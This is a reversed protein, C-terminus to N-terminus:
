FNNALYEIFTTITENRSGFPMGLLVILKPSGLPRELLLVNSEGATITTGTKSGILYPLEGALKNTNELNHLLGTQSRTSMISNRTSSWIDPYERSALVLKFLDEASSLNSPQGSPLDLGSPSQFITSHMGLELAYDNLLKIFIQQSEKYTEGGNIRGIHEAIAAAADNSSEIMMVNILDRLLFTEGVTFNGAPGETKIADLSVHIETELSLEQLAVYATMVKSISAIPLRSGTDRGGIIQGTSIDGLLVADAHINKPIDIVRRKPLLDFSQLIRDRIHVPAFAALESSALERSTLLTTQQFSAIIVVFIAIFGIYKM